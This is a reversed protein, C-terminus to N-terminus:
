EIFLAEDDLEKIKAVHKDLIDVSIMQHEKFNFIDKGKEVIVMKIVEYKSVVDKLSKYDHFYVETFREHVHYEAGSPKTSFDTILDNEIAVKLIDIPFPLLLRNGYHLGDVNNELAEKLTRM